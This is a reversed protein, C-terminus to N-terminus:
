TAPLSGTTVTLDYQSPTILNQWAGAPSAGSASTRWQVSIDVGNTTVSRGAAWGLARIRRHGACRCRHLHWPRLQREDLQPHTFAARGFYAVGKHLKRWSSTSVEGKNSGAGNVTIAGAGGNWSASAVNVLFDYSRPADPVLWGDLIYAWDKTAPGDADVIVQLDAGPDAFDACINKREGPGLRISHIDTDFSFTM